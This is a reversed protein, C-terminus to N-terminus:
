RTSHKKLILQSFSVQVIRLNLSNLYMKLQEFEMWYQDGRSLAMKALELRRAILELRRQM